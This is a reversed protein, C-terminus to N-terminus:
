NERELDSFGEYFLWKCLTNNSQAPPFHKKRKRLQAPPSKQKKPTAEQGVQNDVDDNSM